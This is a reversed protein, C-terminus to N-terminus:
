ATPRTRTVLEIDGHYFRMPNLTLADLLVNARGSTISFMTIHRDYGDPCMAPLFHSSYAETPTKTTIFPTARYEDNKSMFESMLESASDNPEILMQEPDFIVAKVLDNDAEAEPGVAFYLANINGEYAM